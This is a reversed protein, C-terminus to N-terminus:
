SGEEVFAIYGHELASAFAECATAYVDDDADGALIGYLSQLVQWPNEAILTLETERGIQGEPGVYEIIWRRATGPIAGEAERIWVGGCLSAM